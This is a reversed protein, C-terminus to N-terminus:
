CCIVSFSFSFFLFPTEEKEYKAIGYRIADVILKQKEALTLEKEEDDAKRGPETSAADAGGAAIRMMRNVKRREREEREIRLGWAINEEEMRHLYLLQSATIRAHLESTHLTLELKHTQSQM